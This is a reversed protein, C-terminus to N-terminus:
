QSTSVLRGWITIRHNHCYQLKLDQSLFNTLGKGLFLYTLLFKLIKQFPVLSPLQTTLISSMTLNWINQSLWLIKHFRWRVKSQIYQLWFYPSSKSFNTAKESYILKLRQGVPTVYSRSIDHWFMDKKQRKGRLIKKEKQEM